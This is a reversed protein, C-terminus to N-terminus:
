LIVELLDSTHIDRFLGDSVSKMLTSGVDDTPRQACQNANAVSYSHMGLQVRHKETHENFMHVSTFPNSSVM